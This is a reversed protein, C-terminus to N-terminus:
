EFARWRSDDVKLQWHRPYKDSVGCYEDGIGLPCCDCDDNDACTKRILKLANPLATKEQDTM